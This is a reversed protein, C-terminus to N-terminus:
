ALLIANQLTKTNGQHCEDQRIECEIRDERPEPADITNIKTDDTKRADSACVSAAFSALQERTFVRCLPPKGIGSDGL